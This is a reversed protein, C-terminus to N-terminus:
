KIKEIKINSIRKLRLHYFYLLYEYKSEYRLSFKINKLTENFIMIM